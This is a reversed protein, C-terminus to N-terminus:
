MIIDKMTLVIWIIFMTGVEVNVYKLCDM